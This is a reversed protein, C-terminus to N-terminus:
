RRSAVQLPSDEREAWPPREASSPASVRRPLDTILRPHRVAPQANPRHFHRQTQHVEFATAATYIVANWGLHRERRFYWAVANYIAMVGIIAGAAAHVGGKVSEANGSSCFNKVTV